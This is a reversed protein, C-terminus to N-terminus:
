TQVRRVPQWRILASTPIHAVIHLEVSQGRTRGAKATNMLFTVTPWKASVATNQLVQSLVSVLCLLM